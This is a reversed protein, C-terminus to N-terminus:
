TQDRRQEGTRMRAFINTLPTNKGQEGNRRRPRKRRSSCQKMKEWYHEVWGKSKAEYDDEPVGSHTFSLRTGSPVKKLDFTVTSYLGDPWGSSRWRQVIKRDPLLRENTGEIYGGYASIRGGVERSIEASDGTFQAHKRSDMLAEYVDHPSAKFVVSQRITKTTM